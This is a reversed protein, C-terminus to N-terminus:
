YWKWFGLWVYTGIASIFLAEFVFNQLCNAQIINALVAPKREDLTNVTSIHTHGYVHVRVLKWFYCWYLYKWQYKKECSVGLTGCIKYLCEWRMYLMFCRVPASFTINHFFFAFRKSKYLGLSSIINYQALLFFRAVLCILWSSFSMGMWEHTPSINHM